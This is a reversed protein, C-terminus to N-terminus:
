GIRHMVIRSQFAESTLTMKNSAFASIEDTEVSKSGQSTPKGYLYTWHLTNKSVSWVGSFESDNEGVVVEKRLFTLDPRLEFVVEVLRNLRDQYGGSWRGIYQDENRIILPTVNSAPSHSTNMISAVERDLKSEAGQSAPTAFAVYSNEHNSIFYVLQVKTEEDGKLVFSIKIYTLDYGGISKDKGRDLVRFTGRESASNIDRIFGEIWVEPDLWGPPLKSFAVFYLFEDNNWGVIVNETDDYDPVVQYTLDLNELLELALGAAVVQSSSAIESSIVM